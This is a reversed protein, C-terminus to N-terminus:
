SSRLPAAHLIMLALLFLLPYVPYLLLFFFLSFFLIYRHFLFCRLASSSIFLFSLISFFIPSYLFLLFFFFLLFLLIFPPTIIMKSSESSPRYKDLDVFAGLSCDGSRRGAAMVSWSAGLQHNTGFTRAHTRRSRRALSGGHTNRGKFLDNRVSVPPSSTLQAANSCVDRGVPRAAAM